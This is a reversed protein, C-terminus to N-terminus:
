YVAENKTGSSFTESWSFRVFGLDWGLNCYKPASTTSNNRCFNNSIMIVIYYLRYFWPMNADGTKKKWQSFIVEHSNPYGDSCAKSPGAIPRGRVCARSADITSDSGLWTCINERKVGKYCFSLGIMWEAIAESVPSGKRRFLLSVVGQVSIFRHM